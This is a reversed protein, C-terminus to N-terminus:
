MVETNVQVVGTAKFVPVSTVELVYVTGRREAAYIQADSQAGALDDGYWSEADTPITTQSFSLVYM